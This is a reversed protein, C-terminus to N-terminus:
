LKKEIRGKKKYQRTYREVTNVSIDKAEQRQKKM